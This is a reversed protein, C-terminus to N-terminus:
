RWECEILPDGVRRARIPVFGGRDASGSVSAAPMSEGGHHHLASPVQHESEDNGKGHGTAGRDLHSASVPGHTPVGCLELRCCRRADREIRGGARYGPFAGFPVFDRLGGIGEFGEPGQTVRAICDSISELCARESSVDTPITARM